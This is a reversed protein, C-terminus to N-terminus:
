RVKRRGKAGGSAKKVTRKAKRAGKMKSAVKRAKRPAKKGKSANRPKRPAARRTAPTAAPPGAPSVQVGESVEAVGASAATAAARSADAMCFVATNGILGFGGTVVIHMGNGLGRGALFNTAAAIADRQGCIALITGNVRSVGQSVVLIGNLL